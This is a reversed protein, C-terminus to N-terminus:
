KRYVTIGTPVTVIGAIYFDQEKGFLHYYNLDPIFTAIKKYRERELRQLLLKKPSENLLKQEMDGNSIVIVSPLKKTKNDVIAYRYNTKKNVKYEQFYFEKVIIDPLYQYIPINEIGIVKKQSVNKQIWESAQEEPSPSLKVSDWAFFQLLQLMIIVLILMPFFKNKIEKVALGILVIIFPLLVLTRNGAAMLRLPLLSVVFLGLGALIFNPIKYKQWNSKRFLQAIWFSVVILTLGYLGYGFVLPLHRFFIYSFPDIGLQYNGTYNPTRIINDYLYDLVNGRGFLTDPMGFLLLTGLLTLIGVLFIKLNKRWQPYFWIFALVYLALLPIASVKVAIALSLPIAAISYTRLSPEQAFRILYYIALLIWFILAIDYKFYGSLILWLPTFTFLLLTPQESIKLIKTITYLVVISLCGWIITQLRLLEFMRARMEFNDISLQSFDIFGFLVFPILALGSIIFHFMTGNASGPTNPTGEKFTTGVAHLQHWEDMHYPFPHSANPAGWSFTMAIICIYLTIIFIVSGSMTHKQKVLGIISGAIVAVDATLQLAPLFVIAKIDNVYRYNKLISWLLYLIFLGVVLFVGIMSHYLLSLFLLYGILLYRAFLLLVKSRWLNSEADGLAFRFFMVFAQKFSNRPLWHVVADKAFVIKANSEKLKNAFVYDENHSYKEDFGGVKKWISKTFAISRTAPLFNDPNVKDPMVLAYPILCKQFITKAIGKYYGAVVDVNKKIFPKTIYKIWNKDLVNGADTCVIVDGKAHKIAENRGVSRNGTKILLKFHIKKKKFVAKQTEIKSITSDSSGGDVIVIEDPAKTQGHLSEFFQDITKEENFVTTIFSIKM